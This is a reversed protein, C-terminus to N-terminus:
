DIRCSSGKQWSHLAYLMCLCDLDCEEGSQLAAMCLTQVLLMAKDHQLIDQCPGALPDCAVNAPRSDVCAAECRGANWRAGVLWGVEGSHEGAGARARQALLAADSGEVGTSHLAYDLFIASDDGELPGKGGDVPNSTSSEKSERCRLLSSVTLTRCATTVSRM